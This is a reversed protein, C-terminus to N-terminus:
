YLKSMHIGYDTRKGFKIEDIAVEYSELEEDYYYNKSDLTLRPLIDIRKLISAKITIQNLECINRKLFKYVTNNFDTNFLKNFEKNSIITEQITHIIEDIEIVGIQNLYKLLNKNTIYKDVTNFNKYKEPNKCIKLLTQM